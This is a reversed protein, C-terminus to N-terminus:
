SLLDRLAPELDTFKFKYGAALLRDPVARLGDLVLEAKEGLALKIVFGPVHMFSPRNMVRGAIKSFEKYNVPNPATLNYPGQAEGNNLLFVIAEIEDKVHIWSINQKGSGVPGGAFMRFPLLMIPLIGGDPAMVLGTRIIVRRVGWDEVVKTSNEWQVPVVAQFNSGPPQDERVDESGHPGYYGIASAQILVQPKNEAKEIAQVLAQGVNLRSQLIRNKNAATWRQTAIGVLGEGAISAGALNIVADTTEIIQSWGSATRGDWALFDVGPMAAEYNQPNRSLVTVKHGQAALTESLAQGLFGTGGSILVHM